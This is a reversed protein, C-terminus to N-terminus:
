NNKQVFDDDNLLIRASILTGPFYNETQFVCKNDPQDEIDGSENFTMVRFVENNSNIKPTICYKGDFVIQTRGSLITM